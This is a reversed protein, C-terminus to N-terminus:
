HIPDRHFFSISSFSRRSLGFFGVQFGIETWRKSIMKREERDDDSQLVLRSWILDFLRLHEEDTDTVKIMRIQNIQEILKQYLTLKHLVTYIQDNILSKGKERTAQDLQDDLSKESHFDISQAIQQVRQPYPLTRNTIIQEWESLGSVLSYFKRQLPLFSDSSSPIWPMSRSIFFVM